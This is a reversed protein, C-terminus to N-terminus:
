SNSMIHEAPTAAPIRVRPRQACREREPARPIRLPFTAGPGENPEAWLRGGHNEIISRSVSLGIGMGGSKTTHFAQFLRESDQPLGVGTDRVSLRVGDEKDRETKIMLRRLGDDIDRMAESANLLLNLVVQQLQVRDGTICPLHEALEVQLIVRTRQLESSLLATVEKTAENLDVSETPANKKRFLARLRSIVDSARKGDRITRRATERAGELDPPEADLMRLCASANTVIGSLPQNVEHAISATLAGLSSVRSVHALEARVKGLAEDSLCRPTVDQVAGIYELQGEEDRTGHAVLRLYKVSHNSMRLRHECEIDSGSQARDTMERFLEADEPHVRTRILDLTVPRAPDLDFIRYLEQSWAIEDTAPRWSFSGTSSLQQAKALQAESRKLADDTRSREIAIGAMSSFQLLLAPTCPKPSGARWYIAFIAVLEGAMSFIPSSGLSELGPTMALTPWAPNRQGLGSIMDTTSAQTKPSTSTGGSAAVCSVLQGALHDNYGRPLGPGIVRRVRTRTRDVLLVSSVCGEVAADFFQCLAELVAPLPRREQLLGGIMTGIQAIGLGVWTAVRDEHEWGANVAQKTDLCRDSIEPLVAPKWHTEAPASGLSPTHTELENPVHLTTAAADAPTPTKRRCSAVFESVDARCVNSGNM